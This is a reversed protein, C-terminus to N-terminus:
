STTITKKKVTNDENKNLFIFLLFKYNIEQFLSTIIEAFLTQLSIPYDFPFWRIAM